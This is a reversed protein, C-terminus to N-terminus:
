QGSLRKVRDLAAQAVKYNSNYELATEYETIASPYDGRVEFVRGRYYYTEEVYQTTQRTDNAL